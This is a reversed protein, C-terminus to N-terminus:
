KPLKVYQQYDLLEFGRNEFYAISKPDSDPLELRYLGVVNEYEKEGYELFGIALGQGRYQPLIFIEDVFLLVGGAENAYTHCVLGYGAPAGDKQILYGEVYPSKDMIAQFTREFNEKPPHTVIQPLSHYQASMELFIERDGAQFPRINENPFLIKTHQRPGKAKLFKTVQRYPLINYGHRNYLSIAGTNEEEVEVRYLAAKDKYTEECFELYRTGLGHNRYEPLVYIEDWTYILGGAENSYTIFILGYGVRIGDLLFIYGEILPSGELIAHFTDKFHQDPTDHCVADSSHFRRAMDYFALEDSPKFRRIM